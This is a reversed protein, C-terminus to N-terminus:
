KSRMRKNTFWVRIQIPDLNCKRAIIEREKANPRKKKEFVQELFRRTEKDLSTRKRKKFQPTSERSSENLLANISLLPNKPEKPEDPISDHPSDGDKSCLSDEKEESKDNEEVKEESPVSLEIEEFVGKLVGVYGQYVAYAPKTSIYSDDATM